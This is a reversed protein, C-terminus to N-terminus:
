ARGRARARLYDHAMSTAGVAVLYAVTIAAIETWGQSRLTDLTLQYYM